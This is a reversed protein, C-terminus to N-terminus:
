THSCEDTIWLHFIMRMFGYIHSEAVIRNGESRLIHGVGFGTVSVAHRALFSRLICWIVWKDNLVFAPMDGPEQVLRMQNHMYPDLSLALIEVLIGGKLNVTELNICEDELYTFTEANPHGQPISSFILRPNLILPMQLIPQHLNIWLLRSNGKPLSPTQLCRCSYSLVCARPIRWMLLNPLWVQHM